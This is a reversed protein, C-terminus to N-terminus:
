TWIRSLFNFTYNYFNRLKKKSEGRTRAFYWRARIWKEGISRAMVYIIGKDKSGLEEVTKAWQAVIGKRGARWVLADMPPRRAWPRRGREMVIAQIADTGVQVTWWDDVPKVFISRVLSGTDIGDEKKMKEVVLERFKKGTNLLALKQRQAISLYTQQSINVEVM